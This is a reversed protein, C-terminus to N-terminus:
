RHEFAPLESSSVTVLFLNLYELYKGTRIIQLSTNFIDSYLKCLFGLSVINEMHELAALETTLSQIQGFNLSM